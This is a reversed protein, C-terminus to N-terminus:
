SAPMSHNWTAMGRLTQWPITAGDSLGHRLTITGFYDGVRRSLFLSLSLSFYPVSFVFSPWSMDKNTEGIRSVITAYLVLVSYSSLVCIELSPLLSLSLTEMFSPVISHRFSLPANRSVFPQPLFPQLFSTQNYFQIWSEHPVAELEFM